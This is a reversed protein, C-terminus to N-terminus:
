KNSPRNVTVVHLNGFQNSVELFKGCRLKVQLISLENDIFAPSAQNLHCWDIDSMKYDTVQFLLDLLRERLKM